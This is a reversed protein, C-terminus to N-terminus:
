RRRGGGGNRGYNRNNNQGRQAARLGKPNKEMGKVNIIPRLRHVVQVLNRQNSMVTDLNKYAAPAEDRLGEFTDAHPVAAMSSEFDEQSIKKFAATRSMRRGAGHSCSEWSESNGLGRVIFSGTGMSGPIIGLQGKKASTAGKRTVWVTKKKLPDLLGPGSGGGEMEISTQTKSDSKSATDPIPLQEQSCFNHHINVAHTMDASKGTVEQVIKLMVQLMQRRNEQAYRQCWSMDKLYERGALSSIRLFSLEPSVVRTDKQRDLEINEPPDQKGRAVDNWYAACINGINRSGSHLMVWVREDEDYLVELFHNGGGLTGLQKVHKESIAERLWESCLEDKEEESKQMGLAGEIFELAGELAEQHENFGTPIRKKIKMRIAECMEGTLDSKKMNLPVAAMGCGIDVGVANPAVWNESAFVSGVTAGKGLHVDPMAAVHGTVLGSEAVTKLQSLAAPEIEMSNCFVKVPVGKTTLVEPLDLVSADPAPNSLLRGGSMRASSMLIIASITASLVGLIKASVRRKMRLRPPRGYTAARVPM